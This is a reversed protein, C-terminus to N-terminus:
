KKPTYGSDKVKRFGKKNYYIASAIFTFTDDIKPIKNGNCRNDAGGYFWCYDLMDTFYVGKGHQCSKMSRWFDGTLICSIREINTGHYLIKDIRNPCNQREKEFTSLNEREMIVM